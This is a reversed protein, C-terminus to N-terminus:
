HRGKEACWTGQVGNVPSVTRRSRGSARFSLKDVAWAQWRKEPLDICNELWDRATQGRAPGLPQPSSGAAGLALSLRPELLIQL